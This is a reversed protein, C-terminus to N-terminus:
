NADFWSFIWINVLLAMNLTSSSRSSRKKDINLIVCLLGIINHFTQISLSIAYVNTLAGLIVWKNSAGTVKEVLNDEPVKLHLMAVM